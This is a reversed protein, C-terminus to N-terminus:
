SLQSDHAKYWRQIAPGAEGAFWQKIYWNSLQEFQWGIEHERRQKAALHKEYYVQTPGNFLQSDLRPFVWRKLQQWLSQRTQFRLVEIHPEFPPSQEAVYQPPEPTLHLELLAARMQQFTWEAGQDILGVDGPTPNRRLQGEDDFRFHYSDSDAAQCLAAHFTSVAQLLHPPVDVPVRFQSYGDASFDQAEMSFLLVDFRM